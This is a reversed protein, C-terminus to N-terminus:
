RRIARFTLSIREGAQADKPIAHLWDQQMQGSMYLLSGNPLPYDARLTADRKNRYAIARVSGLSVIAVGTGEALGDTDDSHFGMSSKGDPYYNLLCNNPRFGLEGELRGCLAELLAPMPVADYAIQSYDYSTGFSATKRAKMREDWTVGSKLAAFLADPDAIFGAQLLVPPAHLPPATM